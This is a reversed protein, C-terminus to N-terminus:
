PKVEEAPSWRHKAVAMFYDVPVTQSGGEDHSFYVLEGTREGGLVAVVDGDHGRLNWRSGVDPLSVKKPKERLFLATVVAGFLAGCCFMVVTM